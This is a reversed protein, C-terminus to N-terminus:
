IEENKTVRLIEEVTTIGRAAKYIGCKRLPIMGRAIAAKRIEAAPTKATVMRRITDDLTMM